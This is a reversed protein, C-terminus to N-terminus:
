ITCITGFRAFCSMNAEWVTKEGNTVRSDEFIMLLAALMTHIFM